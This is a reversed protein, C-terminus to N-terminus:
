GPNDDQDNNTNGCEANTSGSMATAPTAAEAQSMHLSVKNCSPVLSWNRPRIKPVSPVVEARALRTPISKAPDNASRSPNTGIMHMEPLKYIIEPSIAQTM